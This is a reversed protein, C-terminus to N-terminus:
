TENSYCNYIYIYIYITDYLITDYVITDYVENHFLVTHYTNYVISRMARKRRCLTNELAQPFGPVPSRPEIGPALM